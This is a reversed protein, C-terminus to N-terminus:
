SRKKGVDKWTKDLHAVIQFCSGRTIAFIKRSVRKPGIKVSSSLRAHKIQDIEGERTKM